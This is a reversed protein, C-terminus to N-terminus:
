KDRGYKMGPALVVEKAIEESRRDSEATIVILRDLGATLDDYM